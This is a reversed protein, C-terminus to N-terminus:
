RGMEMRQDGDNKDETESDLSKEFEGQMIGLCFAGALNNPIPHNLKWYYIARQKYYEEEAKSKKM